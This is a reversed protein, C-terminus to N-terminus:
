KRVGRTERRLREILERTEVPMPAPAKKHRDQAQAPRALRAQAERLVRETGGYTLAETGKFAALFRAPNQIGREGIRGRSRLAGALEDALAQARSQDLGDLVDLVQEREEKSLLGRDHLDGSFVVVQTRPQQQEKNVQSEDLKHGRTIRRESLGHGPDDPGPCVPGPYGPTPTITVQTTLRGRADRHKARHYYGQRSLQQTITVWAQDGLSFKAKCYEVRIIWGQPRTLFWLLLGRAALSLSENNIVALPVAAWGGASMDVKIISGEVASM